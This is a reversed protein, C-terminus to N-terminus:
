TICRDTPVENPMIMGVEITDTKVWWWCLATSKLTTLPNPRETTVPTIKPVIKAALKLVLGKINYKVYDVLLKTESSDLRILPLKQANSIRLFAELPIWFDNGDFLTPISLNYAKDDILM